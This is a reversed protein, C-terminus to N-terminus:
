AGTTPCLSKDEKEVFFIRAGAPSLSPRIIGAAISKRICTNMAEMEPATLHYLHGQSPITGPLLDIACDTTNGSGCSGPTGLNSNLRSAWNALWSRRSSSWTPRSDVFMAVGEITLGAKQQVPSLSTGPKGVTYAFDM